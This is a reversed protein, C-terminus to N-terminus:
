IPFDKNHQSYIIVHNFLLIRNIWHSVVWGAIIIAVSFYSFESCKLSDMFNCKGYRIKAIKNWCTKMMVFEISMYILLHIWHVHLDTFSNLTCTFWCIFEIYMYGTYSYADSSICTFWYIFEIYIYVLWHIWHTCLCTFSNLTCIIFCYIFEIYMYVLLHFSIWGEVIASTSEWRTKMGEQCWYNLMLIHLLYM